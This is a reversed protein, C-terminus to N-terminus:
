RRVAPSIWGNAPASVNDAEPEQSVAQEQHDVFQRRIITAGEHPVRNIGHSIVRRNRCANQGIPPDWGPEDRRRNSVVVIPLRYCSMQILPSYVHLMPDPLPQSCRYLNSDHVGATAAGIELPSVM